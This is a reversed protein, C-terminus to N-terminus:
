ALLTSSNRKLLSVNHPTTTQNKEAGINIVNKNQLVNNKNRNVTASTINM